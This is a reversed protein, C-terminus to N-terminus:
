HTRTTFGTQVSPQGFAAPYGRVDDNTVPGDLPEATVVYSDEPLGTIRYSGDPLTLTGIPTKRILPFRAAFDNITSTSEAFVHAGFIPQNNGAFTVRGSIEGTLVDNSAKPYLAAMGAVDDMSLQRQQPFPAFPFMVARVVGSHDLGFFHGIEHTAVTQLDLQTQDTTPGDTNWTLASDSQGRPNPNFVIDADLIQGGFVSVGGRPDIQGIGNAVTSVTVALAGSDRTFDTGTCVFCVLNIGDTGSVDTVSTDSGRSVRVNKTLFINPARTPDTWTDFAAQIVDAVSRSGTLRFGSTSPNLQWQVMPHFTFDWHDKCPSPAAAGGIPERCPNTGSSSTFQALHSEAPRVSFFLAVLFLLARVSISCSKNM